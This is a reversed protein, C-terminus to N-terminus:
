GDGQLGGDAPKGAFEDALQRQDFLRHDGVPQLRRFEHDGVVAARRRRHRQDPREEVIVTNTPSSFKVTVSGLSMVNRSKKWLRQMASSSGSGVAGGAGRSGPRIPRMM